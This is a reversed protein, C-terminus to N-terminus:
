IIVLTSDGELKAEQVGTLELRDAMVRYTGTALTFGGAYTPDAPPGGGGGSSTVFEWETPNVDPYLGLSETRAIYLETAFWVLDNPWYYTTDIWQGRWAIFPGPNTQDWVLSGDDLAKLYGPKGDVLAENRLRVWGNQEVIIDGLAVPGEVRFPPTPAVFLGESADRGDRGPPGSPGQPGAAGAAGPTGPVGQPGPAGAQGDRGDQGPPGLMGMPGPDGRDGKDGKPGIGGDAGPLGDSGPPGPMGDRGPLGQPGAAGPAGPVGVGAPGPPGPDGQEGQLLAPPDLIDSWHHKHIKKAADLIGYGALTTPTNVIAEWELVTIAGEAAASLRNHDKIVQNLKKMLDQVAVRIQKENGLPADSIERIAM